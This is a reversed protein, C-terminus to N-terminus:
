IGCNCKQHVEELDLNVEWYGQLNASFGLMCYLMQKDIPEKEPFTQADDM